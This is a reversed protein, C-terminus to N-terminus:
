LVCFLFIVVGVVRTTVDCCGLSAQKRVITFKGSITNVIEHNMVTFTIDSPDGV